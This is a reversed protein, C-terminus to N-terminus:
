LTREWEQISLLLDSFREQVSISNVFERAYYDTRAEDLTHGDKVRYFTVDVYYDYEPGCTDCGAYTSVEDAYLAFADEPVTIPYRATPALVERAYKDLTELVSM